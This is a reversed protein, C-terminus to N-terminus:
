VVYETAITHKPFIETIMYFLSSNLYKMGEFDPIHDTDVSHHLNGSKYARKHEELRIYYSRRTEGIYVSDWDKCAISCVIGANQLIPIKSRFKGLIPKMVNQPKVATDIDISKFVNSIKEPM